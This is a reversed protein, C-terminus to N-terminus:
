PLKRWASCKGPMATAVRDLRGCEASMLGAGSSELSAREGDDARRTTHEVAVARRRRWFWSSPEPAFREILLDPDPCLHRDSIVGFQVAGDYSLISVGIGIDGSQPVWFMMSAISAGASVSTARARFM